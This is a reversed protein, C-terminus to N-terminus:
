RRRLLLPCVLYTQQKPGDWLWPQGIEPSFASAAHLAAGQLLLCAAAALASLARALDRM